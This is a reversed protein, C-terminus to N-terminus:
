GDGHERLLAVGGFVLGLLMFSTGLTLSGAAPLHQALMAITTAVGVAVNMAAVTFSASAIPACSGVPLSRLLELRGAEEEGRTLRGIMLLSMLAVVVMGMAGAQFAVEGGVTNLGLDATLAPTPPTNFCCIGQRTLLIPNAIVRNPSVHLAGARHTFSRQDVLGERGRAVTASRVM